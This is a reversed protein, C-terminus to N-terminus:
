RETQQNCWNTWMDRLGAELHCAFRPSDFLPSSALQNRLQKRLAALRQLDGSYSIAKAVYDSPSDAIWEALGANMLIGIGQRSAFREGALTLFPVGMWLAEVSTTIGPYPFPDLAIDMRAYTALHEARSSVPGELILRSSDIGQAAFRAITNQRVSAERLQYTKLLLRSGQAATLVEAWLAVVADNMKTLNNFSGFTVFENTSAPLPSVPVEVNPSTFCIYSEPLRLIKETFYIEETKPLVWSDAILFDMSKMGTTALYGLWTAQVPAPKWAFIPLRNGATHGALDILIDIGSDHILRSLREDTLGAVSHWSHCSAKIRETVADAYLHNSYGHIEIRNTAKSVLAAIVDDIFYGVPHARLDASVIGVRLCRGPEPTNHWETYPSAHQVTLGEFRQAEEFQLTPTQDPLYNHILLLNSHANALDPKIELARRCSALANDLQGLDMLALSLNNHANAHTPDIEIARIYSAVASDLQGIYALAIGLNYLTEANDPEIELARHYSVVARDVRGLLKLVVALGAYAKANLPNIQLAHDYSTAAEDLRGRETLAAGLNCHAEAFDPKLALARRYHTAADDFQGTAALVLGLNCYAEAFNPKLELARRYHVIADDFRGLENLINGLNYHAEPYEPNIQLARLYNAIADQPQASLAVALNYHAEADEPLLRQAKILAPLADKGQLQLSIGLVKWVLGCDPYREALFLAQLELKAHLGTKFLMILENLEAQPLQSSSLLSQTGQEKDSLKIQKLLNVIAKLM